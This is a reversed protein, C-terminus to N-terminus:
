LVRVHGLVAGSFQAPSWFMLFFPLPLSFKELQHMTHVVCVCMIRKQHHVSVSEPLELVMQHKWCCWSWWDHPQCVNQGSSCRWCFTEYSALSSQNNIIGSVKPSTDAQDRPKIQTGIVAQPWCLHILTFMVFLLLCMSLFVTEKKTCGRKSRIVSRKSLNKLAFQHLWM